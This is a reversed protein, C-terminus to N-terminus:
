GHSALPSHRGKVSESLTIGQWYRWLYCNKISKCFEKVAAFLVSNRVFFMNTEGGCRLYTAADCNIDYVGNM